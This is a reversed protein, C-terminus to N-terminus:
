KEALKKNVAEEFRANWDKGHKQELVKFYTLNSADAKASAAATKKNLDCGAFQAEYNIGWEKAIAKKADFYAM